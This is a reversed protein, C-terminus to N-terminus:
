RRLRGCRACVEARLGKLLRAFVVIVGDMAVGKMGSGCKRECLWRPDCAVRGRCQDCTVLCM